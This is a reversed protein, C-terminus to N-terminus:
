RPYYAMLVDYMALIIKKKKKLRIRKKKHRKSKEYEKNLMTAISFQDQRLSMLYAFMKAFIDCDMVVYEKGNVIVTDMIPFEEKFNMKREERKNEAWSPM